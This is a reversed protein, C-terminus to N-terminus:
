PRRVIKGNKLAQLWGFESPSSLHQEIVFYEYWGDGSQHQCSGGLRLQQGGPLRVDRM